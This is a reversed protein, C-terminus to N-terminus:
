GVLIRREPLERFRDKTLRRGGFVLAFTLPGIRGLYMMIILVIQSADSLNPTLNATLGVTGLASATEFIVDIFPVSDNEFIVVAATGTFYILLALMVVTFGTRFNDKSIKRGFCETDRGGKIMAMGTLVLMAFTTTKIGGATGGPSGGIFMLIASVLKTEDHLMNQPITYYGATRTTVSQFASALVKDGFSFGKITHPNNYEFALFLVTGVGLLIATMTIALKSHLTLRTFWWRKPVEKKYIRKGNTRLDAWVTFGIGGVIILLMTNISVLPSHAYDMLSHDGIIDVGANCFASISHFVAFWIGKLAGYRPIFAICYVLAGVGEVFFTGLIVSKIMKVMGSIGDSGYTESIMVRETITIKRKLLLFFSTMVAIIGLGGIQILVLLIMKGILTFQTAPVITVLGTVCIATTSTFLADLFRIPSENCFPLWLLFGGLFITLLFGAALIRMTPWRTNKIKKTKITEKM